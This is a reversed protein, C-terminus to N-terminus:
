AASMWRELVRLAARVEDSLTAVPTEGEKAATTAERIRERASVLATQAAAKDGMGEAARAQAVDVFARALRAGGRIVIGQRAALREAIVAAGLAERVRGQMALVIVLRAV